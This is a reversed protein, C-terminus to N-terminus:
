AFALSPARQLITFDSPSTATGLDSTVVHIPGTSALNPVNARILTSTYLSYSAAVGNFDVSTTNTFGTGIINIGLDGWYGSGPTVTTITAQPPAAKFSVLATAINSLNMSDSTATNSDAAANSTTVGWSFRCHEALSSSDDNGVNNTTAGNNISDTTTHTGAKSLVIVDLVIVLEGSAVDASNATVTTPSAVGSVTKQQDTPSSTAVGSFEALVAAVNTPSTVQGNVVPATEGAGCNQKYWLNGGNFLSITTWGSVGSLSMGGGSGDSEGWCVLFNGATTAQGFTPSATSAGSALTGARVLAIAM